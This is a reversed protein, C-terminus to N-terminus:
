VAVSFRGGTASRYADFAAAILRIFPRGAETAAVVGDEVTVIGDAELPGLAALEAEYEPAGDGLDVRFDCMLAEIITARVKDDETLERGRASPMINQLVTRSYAMPDTINQAFGAPLRSISSAGFGLLVPEGDDTYGQFNRHLRGAQAAIALPHDPKAFHDMGVPVYGAETFIAAVLRNLAFRDAANPLARADILRQNRNREPMHAYGYCAVSDPGLELVREATQRVTAETQHPLGIILDYNLMGIGVARLAETAAKVVEFPQVRGMATQVVPDLDQVGLSVRDVKIMALTEALYGDVSRPDLEINHAFGEEFTFHRSLTELVSEFGPRHILSPTGGGWALRKIRLGKPLHLAALAIEDELAERYTAIVEDGRVIKTTCGCYFCLARCYPIHLYVSVESGPEIGALWSAHDEAGLTRFDAATPYSTYRPVPLAAYRSVLDIM